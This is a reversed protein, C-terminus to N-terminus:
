PVPVEYIAAGRDGWALAFRREPLRAFQAPSSGNSAPTRSLWNPTELAAIRRGDFRVISMAHEPWEVVLIADSSLLHASSFRSGERDEGARWSFRHTITLDDENM